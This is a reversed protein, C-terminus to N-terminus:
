GFSPRTAVPPARSPWAWGSAEGRLAASVEALVFLGILLAIMSGDLVLTSPTATTRGESAIRVEATTATAIGDTPDIPVTARLSGPTTTSPLGALHALAVVALGLGIAIILAATLRPRSTPM